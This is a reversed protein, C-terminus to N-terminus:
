PVRIRGRAIKVSSGSVRVATLKGGKVDAELGIQSPRGMEHGQALGFANTGEKLEGAALLQAAFIASAAGTAPDEAVGWGPSFMRARFAADRGDGRAYVYAAGSGSANAMASWAPECPRARGLADLSRVPVFVFSPGGQWLGVEHGDFGIEGVPLGLAAAATAADPRAGAGVVPVVPATFRASIEGGKREVVVPVLGAQEELVLEVRFDSKDKKRRAALALHIACGITPHGAFPIERAPLFIRVRAAHRKRAPKQIFITESLNFERAITQMQADSLDDAGEVIALPNGAYRRTTFVDVVSFELKM